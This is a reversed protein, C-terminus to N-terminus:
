GFRHDTGNLAVRCFSAAIAVVDEIPQPYQRSV